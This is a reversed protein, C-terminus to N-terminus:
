PDVILGGEKFEIPYYEGDEGTCLEKFADEISINHGTQKLAAYVNLIFATMDILMTRWPSTGSKWERDFEKLMLDSLTSHSMIEVAGYYEVDEAASTTTLDWMSNITFALFLPSKGYRNPDNIVYDDILLTRAFAFNLDSWGWAESIVSRAPWPDLGSQVMEFALALKLYQTFSFKAPKGRGTNTGGPFRLRQFHKIRARLAARKPEVIGYLCALAEEVTASPIPTM